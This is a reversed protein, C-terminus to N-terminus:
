AFIFRELFRVGGLPMRESNGKCEPDAALSTSLMHLEKTRVICLLFHRTLIEKDQSFCRVRVTCNIDMCNTTEPIIM